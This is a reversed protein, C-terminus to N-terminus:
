EAKKEERMVKRVRAEIEAPTMLQTFFDIFQGDPGLLYIVVSHDVACLSRPPPTRPPRPSFPLPWARASCSGRSVCAGLYDDSEQGEKRDVESFYVRYAKAAKAVQGPTGTLGVMRPHFDACYAKVQECTDRYPDLSIFMPLVRGATPSGPQADLANVVQAMKVLENPCIDPCFTFGFYLLVYSGLYDGSTRPVGEGDVLSWPGGLLPRGYGEVRTAAEAQKRSRSINYYAVVGCGTALTLFLTPWSIPGLLAAPPPPPPPPPPPAAPSPPSTSLRRLFAGCRSRLPSFRQM